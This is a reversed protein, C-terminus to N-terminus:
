TYLSVRGGEGEFDKGQNTSLNTESHTHVQLLCPDWIKEDGEEATRLFQLDITNQIHVEKAVYYNTLHHVCKQAKFRSTISNLSDM